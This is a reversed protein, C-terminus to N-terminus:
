ALKALEDAFVEAPTRYNLCKRPRHNILEIVGDLKWPELRNLDTMRPLFWRILGNANEISGKQWAKYPEAFYVDAGTEETIDKHGAFESGNDFTLTKATGEPLSRFINGIYDSRTNAARDKVHDAIVYRSKREVQTALSQKNGMFFMTDGEWHGFEERTAVEQPRLSIDVRDVIHAHKPRRQHRHCRFLRPQRLYKGLRKQVGEKSYIYKYISGYNLYLDNAYHKMSGAIQEPSWSAQLGNEIYRSLEPYKRVYAVKRSKKARSQAREQANSPFYELGRRRSIHGGRRLERNVTSKNKGLVAAIEQQNKGECLLVLIRERDTQKLHKYGQAM